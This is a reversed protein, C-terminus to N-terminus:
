LRKTVSGSVESLPNSRSRNSDSSSEAVPTSRSASSIASSQERWACSSSIGTCNVGRVASSPFFVM